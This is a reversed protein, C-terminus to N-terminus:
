DRDRPDRVATTSDEPNVSHASIPSRRPATRIVSSSEPGLHDADTTDVGDFSHRTLTLRIEGFPGAQNKMRPYVEKIKHFKLLLIAACTSYLTIRKEQKDMKSSDEAMSERLLL